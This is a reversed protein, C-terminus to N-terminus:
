FGTGDGLRSVQPSRVARYRALKVLKILPFVTQDFCLSKHRVIRSLIEVEATYRNEDEQSQTVQCIGTNLIAFAVIDGDLFQTAHAISRIGFPKANPSVDLSARDFPRTSVNVEDQHLVILDQIHSVAPRFRGGVCELVLGLRQGIALKTGVTNEVGLLQLRLTSGLIRWL